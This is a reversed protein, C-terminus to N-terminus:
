SDEKEFMKQHAIDRTRAGGEIQNIQNDAVEQMISKLEDIGSNDKVTVDLQVQSKEPARTAELVAKAADVMVKESKANMMLDACVNLAKQHLDVNLVFSPILAQEIITNVLKGKSYSHVFGSIYSDNRNEARMRAMKDPFTLGWASQNTHGMMKYTAYACANLYDELKFKGEKMINNFGLFNDRIEDAVDPDQSVSNLKAMLSDTVKTRLQAPLAEKIDAKSYRGEEIPEQPDMSSEQILEAEVEPPIDPQMDAMKFIDLRGM